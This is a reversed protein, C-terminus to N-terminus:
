VQKRVTVVTFGDTEVKLDPNGNQALMRRVLRVGRGLQEVYGLEVLWRTITPNRYDAHSGFEGESAHGFPGGPNSFVIRDDFWEVRAPANTGEYLRHQLLNRALEKLAELPYEPRYPTRIGESPAPISALHASLQAWLGDLQDSLPGAVSKRSAVPADVDTGGYRVFEAAAGPLFVRPNEGFLLIAAVNPTWTGQFSRGLDKRTLWDEIDPFSERDHDNEKAALYMPRLVALRLDDLTAGHVLRHDKLDELDEPRM